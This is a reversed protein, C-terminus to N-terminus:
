PRRIFLIPVLLEKWDRCRAASFSRPLDKIVSPLARGRADPRQLADLPSFLEWFVRACFCDRWPKGAALWGHKDDTENEFGRLGAPAAL